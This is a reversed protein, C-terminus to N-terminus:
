KTLEGKKNVKGVIKAPVGMVLAHSPVDKTIVAGAAVFAYEGITVGCVITSNAGISAGKKVTTEKYNDKGVPFESRPKKVNTFVVKPGVFVDNELTVGSYVSVGDQIKVNNGLVGGPEISVYKGIKCNEGIKAGKMVHSYHWIKTGEGIESGEEIIATPAAFYKKLSKTLSIKRGEKLSKQCAGLVKLVNLASQGDTLPKEGTNICKLFHECEIKLPETDEIKIRKGERKNATPLYGKKWDIQHPYVVLKDAGTDDFVVMNRSAMIVLKQEKFPNLWSVFVHAQVGNPFALNSVTVDPVGPTIYSEGASSVEIPMEGLLRLIVAIDHPAFSWLINEGRRIKGFNLRHSYIYYIKGLKRSAILEKLKVVAPHYELLHGVMLVLSKKEALNVLEEGEKVTLALPKEVFMDKGLELAIKTLSYHTPAPTAIAIADVKKMAEGFSLTLNVESYKRHLEKLVEEKTDCIASLRGFQYFNRVLNKGWYGAGIVAIKKM